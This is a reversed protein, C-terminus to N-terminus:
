VTHDLVARTVKGSELAAIADEVEALPWVQTVQGAIELKGDQALEILEPYDREPRAGGNMTSVIERGSLVTDLPLTATAGASTMGILVIRGGRKVALVSAEVASPAGCCEVAIDIPEFAKRMRAALAAGDEGRQAVLFADAGFSRAVDEKAPNMDVALVSAGALKAGQIANVGIGGVGIVAVRDGEGVEGLVRAACYGTSVACGILAAQEPPLDGTAYLQSAKAVIEGAFSSVNAFNAVPKGEWTFPWDSVFGWNVDCNAPTGRQCERCTGCPTQTGVMVADGVQWETVGPGVEEVVGAAEHGLVVPAKGGPMHMMNIDSHCLGSRLVKVKVEGEGPARVELADTVILKQGDWVIGRM